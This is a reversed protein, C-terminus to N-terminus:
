GLLALSLVSLTIAVAKQFNWHENYFIISLVIPILIYMSHVTQVIGLTGGSAYAYLIFGFSVNILLARLAAYAILKGTSDTPLHKLLYGIGKKYVITCATGILVGFSSYFLGTFVNIEADISFKSLASSTASFLATLIIMILGAKLNNQRRNESKNILLLPVTLGILMGSWELLSFSEAFWVIGIGIALAPSLLKFLPFFITSDIHRLAYIKLIGGLAALMGAGFMIATFLSFHFLGPDIFLVVSSTLLTAALGGYLSFVEANYNRSAAIKYIFNSLGAFIAGIVAAIFWIEM